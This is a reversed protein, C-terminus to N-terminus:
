GLWPGKQDCYSGDDNKKSCYARKAPTGDGKTRRWESNHVPCVLAQPAAPAPQQSAFAQAAPTAQVQAVAHDIDRADAKEELAAAIRELASAIREDTM